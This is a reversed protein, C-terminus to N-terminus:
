FSGWDLNMALTPVQVSNNNGDTVTTSTTGFTLNESSIMYVGNKSNGDHDDAQTTITVVNNNVTPITTLSDLYNHTDIVQYTTTGASVVNGYADTELGTVATISYTSDGNSGAGSMNGVNAPSSINQATYDNSQSISTTLNKTGPAVAHNVTIHGGTGAEVKISAGDVQDSVSVQGTTSNAAFSITQDDGSPIVEWRTSNSAGEVSSSSAPVAIILDGTNADSLLYTYTSASLSGGAKYTYGWNADGTLAAAVAQSDSSDLVGKFSMADAVAITNTLKNDIETTTYVDLTATGGVFTVSPKTGTKGYTITPTVTSSYGQGGRNDSITTTLNGSNDFATSLNNIGQDFAELTIIDNSQSVQLFGNASKIDIHSDTGSNDADLAIQAATENSGLTLTSAATGIEYQTNDSVGSSITITNNSQTVAVNTGGTINVKGTVSNNATDSVSLNISATNNASETASSLATVSTNLTDNTDPNLQTWSNTDSDWVALVNEKKAYYYDGDAASVPLGTKEAGPTNDAVVQDVTRIFQNLPVLESSSQAFYLRDTDTTLYFSGESFSNPTGNLSLLNTLASQTGKKFQVKAM